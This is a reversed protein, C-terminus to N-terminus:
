TASATPTPEAPDAVQIINSVSLMEVCKRIVHLLSSYITYDLMSSNYRGSVEFNVMFSSTSRLAYSSKISTVTFGHHILHKQTNKDREGGETGGHVAKM